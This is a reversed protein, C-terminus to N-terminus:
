VHKLEGQQFGAQFQERRVRVKAAALRSKYEEIDSNVNQLVGSHTFSLGRRVGHSRDWEEEFQRDLEAEESISEALLGERIEGVSRVRSAFVRRLIAALTDARCPEVDFLHVCEFLGGAPYPGCALYGDPTITAETWTEPTGYHRGHLWRELVWCTKNPYRPKLRYKFFGDSEWYGGMLVVRQPAWVLRFSPYQECLRKAWDPANV